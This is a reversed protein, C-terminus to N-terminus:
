YSELREVFDFRLGDPDVRANAISYLAIYNLRQLTHKVADDVASTTLLVKDAKLLWDRAEIFKKVQTDATFEDDFYTLGAASPKAHHSWVCIVKEGTKAHTAFYSGQNGKYHNLTKM